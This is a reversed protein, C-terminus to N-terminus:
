DAALVIAERAPTTGTHRDELWTLAAAAVYLRTAQQVVDCARAEPGLSVAALRARRPEGARPPRQRRLLPVALREVTHALNETWVAHPTREEARSTVVPLADLVAQAVLEPDFHMTADPAEASPAAAMLLDGLVTGFPPREVARREWLFASLRAAATPLVTGAALEYVSRRARALSRVEDDEAAAGREAPDLYPGDFGVVKQYLQEHIRRRRLRESRLDHELASVVERLV